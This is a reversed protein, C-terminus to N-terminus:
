LCISSKSKHLQVSNLERLHWYPNNMENRRVVFLSRCLNAVYPLVYQSSFYRRPTSQGMRIKDYYMSLLFISGYSINKEINLLVATSCNSLQLIVAPWTIIFYILLILWYLVSCFVYQIIKIIFSIMSLYVIHTPKASITIALPFQVVEVVFYELRTMAMCEYCSHFFTHTEMRKWIEPM